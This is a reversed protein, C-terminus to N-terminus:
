GLGVFCIVTSPESIRCRPDVSGTTFLPIFSDYGWGTTSAASRSVFMVDDLWRGGQFSVYGYGRFISQHNPLHLKRKFLDRKLFMNNKKPTHTVDSFQHLLFVSRKKLATPRMSGKLHKQFFTATKCGFNRLLWEVPLNKTHKKQHKKNEM